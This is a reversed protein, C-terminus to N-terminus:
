LASELNIQSTLGQGNLTFSVDGCLWDIANIEPRFGQVQVPYDPSFTLDAVAQSVTMGFTGRQIKNWLALAAQQAAAETAFTEKITKVTGQEGALIRPTKANELDQWRAYVGTYESDRDSLSFSFRDGEQRRLTRRPLPQGSVTHGHGIPMFVLRGNKITAVADHKEALRMLINADSENTQSIHGVMQGILAQSFAGGLGNRTAIEELIGGLTGGTYARDREVKIGEHFNASSGEITMIDPPGSLPVADVIFRGKYVVGQGEFGLWLKLVVGRRPMAIRHNDALTISLTDATLGRKDTVRLSMFNQALAATVDKEDATIKFIPKM